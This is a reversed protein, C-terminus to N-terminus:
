EAINRLREMPQPSPLFLSTTRGQPLEWDCGQRLGPHRVSPRPLAKLALTPQLALSSAASSQPLVIPSSLLRPPALHGPQPAGEWLSLQAPPLSFARTRGSLGSAAQHAGQSAGKVKELFILVRAEQPQMQTTWLTTPLLNSHQTSCPSGARGQRPTPQSTQTQWNAASSTPAYCLSPCLFHCLYVSDEPGDSIAM